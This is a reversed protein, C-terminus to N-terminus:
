SQDGHWLVSVLMGHCTCLESGCGGASVQTPSLLDNCELGLSPKSLASVNQIIKCM